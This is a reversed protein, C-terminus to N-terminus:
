SSSGSQTTLTSASSMLTASQIKESPDYWGGNESPFLAPSAWNPQSSIVYDWGQTYTTQQELLDNKISSFYSVSSTAYRRSWDSYSKTVSSGPQTQMPAYRAEGTQQTYALTFSKTDIKTTGGSLQTQADPPTTVSGVTPEYSGSMGSLTFRYTYHITYGTSTVAYVQIYYKGDAGLTNDITLDVSYDTIDDANLTSLTSVAYVDTNPGSCLTFTYSTIKTLLPTADSEIWSVTIDVSGSSADYTQGTLPISISVDAFTRSVLLYLLIFFKQLSVM